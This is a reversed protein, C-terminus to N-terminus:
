LHDPSIRALWYEVDRKTLSFRVGAGWSGRGFMGGALWAVGAQTVCKCFITSLVSTHTKIIRFTDQMSVSLLEAM